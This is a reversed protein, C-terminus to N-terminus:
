YMGTEDSLFLGLAVCGPAFIGCEMIRSLKRWCILRGSRNCGVTRRALSPFSWLM